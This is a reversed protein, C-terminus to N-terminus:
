ATIPTAEDAAGEELREAKERDHKARILGLLHKALKTAQKEMVFNKDLEMRRVLMYNRLQEMEWSTLFTPDNQLVFQDVGGYSELLMLADHDIAPRFQHDLLESYVSIPAADQNWGYIHPFVRVRSRGESWTLTRRMQIRKGFWTQMITNPSMEGPHGQLEGTEQMKQIILKYPTYAEPKMYPNYGFKGGKHGGMMHRPAARWQQMGYSAYGYNEKFKEDMMTKRFPDMGHGTYGPRNKGMRAFYENFSRKEGVRRALVPFDPRNYINVVPARLTVATSRFMGAM